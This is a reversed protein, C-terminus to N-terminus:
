RYRVYKRGRTGHERGVVVLGLRRTRALGFRGGTFYSCAVAIRRSIVSVVAATVFTLTTFRGSGAAM